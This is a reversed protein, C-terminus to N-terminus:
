STLTEYHPSGAGLGLLEELLDDDFVDRRDRLLVGILLDLDPV